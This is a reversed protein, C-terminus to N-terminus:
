HEVVVTDVGVLQIDGAAFHVHAGLAALLAAPMEVPQLAWPEM